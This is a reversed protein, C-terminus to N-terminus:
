EIEHRSQILSTFGPTKLIVPKSSEALILILDDDNEISWDIAWSSLNGKLQLYVERALSALDDDIVECLLEIFTRRLKDDQFFFYLM